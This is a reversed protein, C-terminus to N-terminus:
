KTIARITDTGEFPQGDSLRGTVTLTLAQFKLDEEYDPLSSHMNQPAFFSRVISWKSGRQKLPGSSSFFTIQTHLLHLEELPELYRFSTYLTKSRLFMSFRSMFAILFSIQGFHSMLFSHMLSFVSPFNDGSQRSPM